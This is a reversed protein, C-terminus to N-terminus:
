DLMINLGLFTLWVTDKDDNVPDSISVWQPKTASLSHFFDGLLAHCHHCFSPNLFATISDMKPVNNDKYTLQPCPSAPQENYIHIQHWQLTIKLIINDFFKVLLIFPARSQNFTVLLLDTGAPWITMHFTQTNISSDNLLSTSMILYYTLTIRM